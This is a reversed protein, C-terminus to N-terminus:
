VTGLNWGVARNQFTILFEGNVKAIRYRRNDSRLHNITSEVADERTHAEMECYDDDVRLIARLSTNSPLTLISTWLPAQISIEGSIWPLDLPVLPVLLQALTQTLATQVQNVTGPKNSRACVVVSSAPEFEDLRVDCCLVTRLQPHSLVM